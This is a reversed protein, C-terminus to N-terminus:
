TEEEEEATSLRKRLDAKNSSGSGVHTVKKEDISSLDEIEDLWTKRGRASLVPKFCGFCRWLNLSAENKGELWKEESKSPLDKKGPGRRCIVKGKLRRDGSLKVASDKKEKDMEPSKGGKEDVVSSSTGAVQSEEVSSSEEKVNM